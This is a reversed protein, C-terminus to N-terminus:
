ALARAASFANKVTLTPSMPRRTPTDTRNKPALEHAWSCRPLSPKEIKAMEPHASDPSALLVMRSQAPTASNMAAIPLDPWNGSCVQSGSAMAPGVGTDASSCEDVM